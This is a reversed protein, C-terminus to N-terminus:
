NSKSSETISFLVMVAENNYITRRAAHVPTRIYCGDICDDDYWANVAAAAADVHKLLVQLALGSSSRCLQMMEWGDGRSTNRLPSYIRAAIRDICARILCPTLAKSYLHCFLLWNALEFRWYCCCCTKWSILHRFIMSLKLQSWTMTATYVKHPSKSHQNFISKEERVHLPM